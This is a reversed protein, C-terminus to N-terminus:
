HCYFDNCNVGFPWGIRSSSSLNGNPTCLPCSVYEFKSLAAALPMDMPPAVVLPVIATPAVVAAAATEAGQHVALAPHNNAIHQADLAPGPQCAAVCLANQIEEHTIYFHPPIL